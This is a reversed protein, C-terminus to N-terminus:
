NVFTIIRIGLRKATDILNEKIKIKEAVIYLKKKPFANKYLLLQGLSRQYSSLDLTPKLEYISEETMIDIIGYETKVYQEPNELSAAFKKQFLRERQTGVPEIGMRLRKRTVAGVTVGLFQAIEKDPKKGLMNIFNGWKGLPKIGLSKRYNSVYQRTKGITEAIKADTYKGFMIKMKDTNNM